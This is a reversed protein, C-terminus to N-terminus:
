RRDWTICDILQIFPSVMTLNRCPLGVPPMEAQADAQARDIGIFPAAWDSPVKSVPVERLVVALAVDESGADAATGVVSRM